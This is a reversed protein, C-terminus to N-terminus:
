PGELMRALAAGPDEARMLGEGILVADARTGAVRLFDTRSRVGSMYVAIRDFPIRSILAAAAAPDVDFSRLDRANVGIASVDTALARDLEAPDAAEVLPELGRARVASVLGLLTADDLARVLLLVLSAGVARALEVQVPDLVFEKFLVPVAVSASVRRVDLPSGGFAPGDALVSVAAAGARVCGLAVEVADGPRRARILGASPSRHKLEAIVRPAAGAPRRLAALASRGREPDVAAAPLARRRRRRRVEDRKRELIAALHDTV